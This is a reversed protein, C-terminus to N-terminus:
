HQRKGLNTNSELSYNPSIGYLLGQAIVKRHFERISRSGTFGLVVNMGSKIEHVVEFWTHLVPIMGEKGEAVHKRDRDSSESRERALDSAEGYYRTLLGHPCEESEKVEKTDENFPFTEDLKGRASEVCRAALQGAVLIDAGLALCANAVFRGQIGGDAWVPIGCLRAAASVEAIADAQPLGIGNERTTCPSGPGMGVKLFSAGARIARIAAAFTVINGVGIDADPRAKVIGKLIAIPKYHDVHTSEIIIGVAGADILRIALQIEEEPNRIGVCGFVKGQYKRVFRMQEQEGFYRHALVVQGSEVVADALGDNIVSQMNAALLPHAVRREKGNFRNFSLATDYTISDRGEIDANFFPATAICRVTLATHLRRFGLNDALWKLFSRPARIPIASTAGRIPILILLHIWARITLGFIWKGLISTRRPKSAVM